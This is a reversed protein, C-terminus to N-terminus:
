NTVEHIPLKDHSARMYSTAYEYVRKPIAKSWDLDNETNRISNHFNTGGIEAQAKKIVEDWSFHQEVIYAIDEDVNQVDSSIDSM